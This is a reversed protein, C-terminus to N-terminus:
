KTTHESLKELWQKDRAIAYRLSTNFFLKNIERVNKRGIELYFIDTAPEEKGFACLLLQSSLPFFFSVGPTLFGVGALPHPQKSTPPIMVVPNDSTIFSSNKPSKFVAWEYMNFAPILDPALKAMMVISAERNFKIDYRENEIIAALSAAEQSNKGKRKLIEKIRDENYIIKNRQKMLDSRFKEYWDQFKPTRTYLFALCTSMAYREEQSIQKESQFNKFLSVFLGDVDRLATEIETSLSGDKLRLSYYNNIVATTRPPQQRIEATKKDYVWIKRKSNVFNYQYSEPLYHHKKPKEKKKNSFPM